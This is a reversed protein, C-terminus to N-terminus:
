FDRKWGIYFTQDSDMEPESVPNRTYSFHAFVDGQQGLNHSYYAELIKERDAGEFSLTTREFGIDGTFRNQSTPLTLRVSGDAQLM